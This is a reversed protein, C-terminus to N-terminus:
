RYNPVNSEPLEDYAACCDSLVRIEDVVVEFRVSGDEALGGAVNLVDGPYVPAAFRAKLERLSCPHVSMARSVELNAMALSCLGHLIPRNFGSEQAVRPDIHLPHRDGTLRYLAAQDKSTPVKRIWVSDDTTRADTKEGRPGGWGGQGPLFLSYTACFQECEVEIDVVSAKEKDWVGGVRASTAITGATPLPSHVTLSQSGHLSRLRDYAGLRGAAEVAWRGIVLAFTPLVKLDREYVLDLDTSAAGVALAYLMVDRDSYTVSQSGLSTGALDSLLM